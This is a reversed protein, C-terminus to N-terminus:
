WPHHLHIGPPPTGCDEPARNQDAPAIAFDEDILHTPDPLPTGDLTQVPAGRREVGITRSWTQRREVRDAM